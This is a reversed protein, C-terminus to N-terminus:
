KPNFVLEENLIKDVIDKAQKELIEKEENTIQEVKLLKGIVKAKELETSNNKNNLNILKWM